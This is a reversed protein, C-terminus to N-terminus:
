IVSGPGRIWEDVHTMKGSSSIMENAGNAQCTRFLYSRGPKITDISLYKATNQPPLKWSGPSCIVDSRFCGNSPGPYSQYKVSELGENWKAFGISYPNEFVSGMGPGHELAENLEQGSVGCMRAAVRAGLPAETLGKGAANTLLKSALAASGRSIAVGAGYSVAGFAAGMGMNMLMGEISSDPGANLAYDLASTGAGIAM